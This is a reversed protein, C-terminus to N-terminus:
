AVQAYFKPKLGLEYMSKCLAEYLQAQETRSRLTDGSTAGPQPLPLPPPSDPLFLGGGKYKM